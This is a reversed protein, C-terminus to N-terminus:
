LGYRRLLKIQWRMFARFARRQEVVDYDPADGDYPLEDLRKYVHEQIEGIRLKTYWDVKAAIERTSFSHFTQLKRRYAEAAAFHTIADKIDAMRAQNIAALKLWDAQGQPSRDGVVTVESVDTPIQMTCAMVSGALCVACRGNEDHYSPSHWLGMNVVYTKKMREVSVLDKLAVELLDSLKRFKNLHKLKKPKPKM